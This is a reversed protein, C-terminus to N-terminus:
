NIIIEARDDRKKWSKNEISQYFSALQQNFLAPEEDSAIIYTQWGKHVCLYDGKMFKDSESEVVVGVSEGTMPEGLAAPDAYSEGDNMRGRMYPDISLYLIKILVEGKELPRVEEENLKWCEDGPMGKPRQDLLWQKNIYTM